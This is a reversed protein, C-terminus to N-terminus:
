FVGFKELSVVLCLLEICVKAYCLDALVRLHVDIAAEVVRVGFGEDTVVLLLNVNPIFQCALADEFNIEVLLCLGVVYTCKAVTLLLHKVKHNACVIPQM